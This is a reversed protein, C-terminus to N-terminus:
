NLRTFHQDFGDACDLFTDILEPDFQQAGHRNGAQIADIAAQHGLAERYPRHRRLADYADAFQFVRASYPIREGSLGLVGLGDYREHHYLVVENAAMLPGSELDLRQIVGNILYAGVKTHTDLLSREYSAIMGRQHLVEEPVAIMGVDHLQAAYCLDDTFIQDCGLAEAFARCYAATRHLHGASDAECEEALRLLAYYHLAEDVLDDSIEAPQSEPHDVGDVHASRYKHLEKVTFDHAFENVLSAKHDLLSDISLRVAKCQVDELVRIQALSELTDCLHDLCGEIRAPDLLSVAASHETSEIM